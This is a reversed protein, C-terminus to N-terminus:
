KSECPHSPDKELSREGRHFPPLDGDWVGVGKEQVDLCIKQKKEKSFISINKVVGWPCTIFNKGKPPHSGGERQSLWGWVM